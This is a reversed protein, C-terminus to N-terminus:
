RVEGERRPEDAGTEALVTEGAVARQGTIVMPVM